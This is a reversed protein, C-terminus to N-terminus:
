QLNDKLMGIDACWPCLSDFRSRLGWKEQLTKLSWGLVAWIMSALSPLLLSVDWLNETEISTLSNLLGSGAAISNTDM